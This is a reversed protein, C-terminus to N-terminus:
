QGGRLDELVDVPVMEARRKPCAEHRTEFSRLAVVLVDARAREPLQEESGCITCWVRGTREDLRCHHPKVAPPADPLLPSAPAHKECRTQGCDHCMRAAEECLADLRAATEGFREEPTKGTARRVTVIVKAAEGRQFIYSQYNVVHGADLLGLFSDALVALIGHTDETSMAGDFRFMPDLLRRGAERSAELDAQTETLRRELDAIRDADTM